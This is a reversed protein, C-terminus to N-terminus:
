GCRKLQKTEENRKQSRRKQVCSRIRRIKKDTWPSDKIGYRELIEQKLKKRSIVREFRSDHNSYRMHIYRQWQEPLHVTELFSLRESRKMKALQARIATRNMWVTDKVFQLKEFDEINIPNHIIGKKVMGRIVYAQIKLNKAAEEITLGKQKTM